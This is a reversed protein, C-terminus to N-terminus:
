QIEPHEARMQRIEDGVEAAFRQSTGCDNELIASGNGLGVEFFAVFAGARESAIFDM